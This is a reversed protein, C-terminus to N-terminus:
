LAAEDVAHGAVTLGREIGLFGVLPLTASVEVEVLTVGDHVVQRSSVDQAFRASLAEGILARTRAEGDALSRDANAAHRAGDAACAVLTNRVHIALGLQLVALFLTVLVISVLTFEVVASGREPAARSTVTHSTAAHSTV